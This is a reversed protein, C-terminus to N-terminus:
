TCGRGSTPPATRRVGYHHDDIGLQVLAEWERAALAFEPDANVRASLAQPDFGELESQASASAGAPVRARAPREAFTVSLGVAAGGARLMFTRRNVSM